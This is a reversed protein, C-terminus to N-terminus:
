KVSSGLPIAGEGDQGSIFIYLERIEESTLLNIDLEEDMICKPLWQEIQHEMGVGEEDLLDLYQMQQDETWAMPDTGFDRCKRIVKATKAEIGLREMGSAQRVWIKRGDELEIEKKAIPM